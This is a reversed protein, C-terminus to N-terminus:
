IKQGERRAYVYRPFRHEGFISVYRRERPQESRRLTHDGKPLSEGLDGDGCREIYSELLEFGLRLLLAFVEREVLDVRLDKQEAEHIRQILAEFAQFAKDFPKAHSLIM